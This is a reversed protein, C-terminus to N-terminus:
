IELQAIFAAAEGISREMEDILISLDSKINKLEVKLSSIAQANLNHKLFLTQDQLAALVPKMKREANRMALMLQNYRNKTSNLKHRSQRQLDGSSYQHLEEKWETFLATAVDEINNIRNIVENAATKSAEYEINIKDYKEKLATSELNLVFYYQDLASKFQKKAEVQADKAADVRNALIDRKHIGVQEMADYYLNNCGITSSITTSLFVLLGIKILTSM